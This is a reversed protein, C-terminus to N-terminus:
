LLTFKSIDFGDEDISVNSYNLPIDYINELDSNSLREMNNLKELFNTSETQSIQCFDLYLKSKYDLTGKLDHDTNAAHGPPFMVFGSDIKKGDTFEINVQSPIGEPYKKDFAEGGHIFNIKAMIARTQPCRLADNSYDVPTLLLSDWFKNNDTSLSQTQASKNFAKKLLRSLIFVMSHDASQRTKPDKKAPDGIIGFAPEYATVNIKKIKDFADATNYLNPNERLLKVVGQIAGASQHEYLGLKFHMGM